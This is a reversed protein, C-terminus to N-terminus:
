KRGETLYAAKVDELRWVGVLKDGSYAYLMPDSPEVILMDAQIICTAEATKVFANM